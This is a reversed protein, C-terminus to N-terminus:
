YEVVTPDPQITITESPRDGSGGVVQGLEEDTLEMPQAPPTPQKDQKNEDKKIEKSM